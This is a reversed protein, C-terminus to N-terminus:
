HLWVHLKDRGSIIGTEKLLFVKGRVMANDSLDKFIHGAETLMDSLSVTSSLTPPKRNVHFKGCYDIDQLSFLHEENEESM